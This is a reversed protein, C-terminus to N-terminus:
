LFGICNCIHVCRIVLYSPALRQELVGAHTNVISIFYRFSWVFRYGRHDIVMIQATKAVCSLFQTSNSSVCWSVLILDLKRSFIPAAKGTKSWLHVRLLIEVNVDLYLRFGRDIYSSILTQRNKHVSDCVIQLLWLKHLWRSQAFSLRHIM